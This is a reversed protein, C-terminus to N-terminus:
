LIASLFRFSAILISWQGSVYLPAHSLTRPMSGRYELTKPALNVCINIYILLSRGHTFKNQVYKSVVDSGPTVETGHTNFFQLLIVRDYNTPNM